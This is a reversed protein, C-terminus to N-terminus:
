ADSVDLDALECLDLPLLTTIYQIAIEKQKSLPLDEIYERVMEWAPPKQRGEAQAIRSRSVNCQVAIESQSLGKKYIRIHQLYQGFHNQM